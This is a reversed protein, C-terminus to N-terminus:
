EIPVVISEKAVVINNRIVYCEVLHDGTFCTSEVRERRGNNDIIQGRICNRRKAEDGINLVEM